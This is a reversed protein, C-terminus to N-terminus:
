GRKPPVIDSEVQMADTIKNFSNYHDVVGVVELLDSPTFGDAELGRAFHDRWSASGSQVAVAFAVAKKDTSTLEGDALVIQHKRWTAELYRRNRALVDWYLAVGRESSAEVAANRTSVTSEEMPVELIRRATWGLESAELGLGVTIRCAAHVHETVAVLETVGVETKGFRM